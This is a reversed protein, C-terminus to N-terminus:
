YQNEKETLEKVIKTKFINRSNTNVVQAAFKNVIVRLRHIPQKLLYEANLFPEEILRNNRLIRVSRSKEFNLSILEDNINRKYIDFAFVTDIVNRRLELPHISLLKCRDCYPTLIFSTAQRSNDLLYIVFQKQM